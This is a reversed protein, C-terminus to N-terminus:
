IVDIDQKGLPKDNAFADKAIQSFSVASVAMAFILILHKMINKPKIQYNFIQSGCIMGSIFDYLYKKLNIVTEFVM